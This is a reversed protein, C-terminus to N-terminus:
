PGERLGAADGRHWIVDPETRGGIEEVHDVFAAIDPVAYDITLEVVKRRSYDAISSFTDPGRRHTVSRTAGTNMPTLLIRDGYASVLPRTHVFIVTQRDDRYARAARLRRLRDQDAWFFVRRNLLQYWDAPTLGGTLCRALMRDNIPKQDRIVAEGHVVHRISEIADRRRTELLLRREGSVEFLDLLATTSLLGHRQISPWSGAAAMHYVRPYRQCLEDLTM